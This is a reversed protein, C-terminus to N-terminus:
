ARGAAAAALGTLERTEAPDQGIAGPADPLRFWFVSGKGEESEVGISGGHQEIIAKCIALGLGSGGTQRADSAEAQRFREFLAGRFSSPIGRGQDRVRVQLWGKEQSASFQVASGRPSFKVANSLLNVLVQVLKEGDGWVRAQTPLGELTVGREQDAFGRVAELSRTFISDLALTEFNMEIRGTDFRELDLIDSRGAPGPARCQARSRWSRPPGRPLKGPDEPSSDWRGRISTLPTRLEHSVTSVFEKKLREVERRESIDRLSGGFRRGEPTQFEFLSLEFPFTAGNKRRGEWETIRGLSRRKAERLFLAPNEMLSEPVLLALPQGVLEEAAYGFIRGAAPNMARIVIEDDVIILAEMM